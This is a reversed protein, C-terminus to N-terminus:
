PIIEDITISSAMVGGLLRSSANGNLRFNISPCGVRVKFTTVSTTGAAMKHSFTITVGGDGTAQYHSAAALADATTDQFLAAIVWAGAAPAGMITVQIHLENAADTPTIALTMFETGETNQPITDDIPTSTTGLSSAGTETSVRQVLAGSGGGGQFISGFLIAAPATGAELAMAFDGTVMPAPHPTGQKAVSDHQIFDGINCVSDLSLGPVWIGFAVAGRANNAIGNPEVVVGILGDKFAATTTTTFADANATDIIVVNGRAVSGGSKNELLVIGTRNLGANM